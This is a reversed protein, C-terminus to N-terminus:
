LPAAEAEVVTRFRPRMGDVDVVDVKVGLLDSLDGILAAHDMLSRGEDFRVMFDVDSNENADGRAVSGFIRVDSAGHREAIALIEARRETLNQRTIMIGEHAM